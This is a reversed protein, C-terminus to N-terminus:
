RVKLRIIYEEEKELFFGNFKEMEDELMMIFDIEERSGGCGGDIRLRKRPRDVDGVPEVLKLQKKLEKYKLFKDRWEPLTEEIQNSLSKGFKMASKLFRYKIKPHTSHFTDSASPSPSAYIYRVTFFPINSLTINPIDAESRCIDLIDERRKNRETGQQEKIKEYM